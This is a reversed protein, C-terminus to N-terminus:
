RARNKRAKREHAVELKKTRRVIEKGNRRREKRHM